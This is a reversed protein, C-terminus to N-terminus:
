KRAKGKPTAEANEGAGKANAPSAKAKAKAKAAGKKDKPKPIVKAGPARKNSKTDEKPMFPRGHAGSDM